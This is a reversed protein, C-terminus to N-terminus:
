TAMPGGSAGCRLTGDTAGVGNLRGFPPVHRVADPPLTATSTQRPLAVRRGCGAALGVWRPGHGRRNLTDPVHAMFRAHQPGPKAPGPDPAGGCRRPSSPPYAGPLHRGDPQVRAAGTASLELAPPESRRRMRGIRCAEPGNRPRRDVAGGGLRRSRRGVRRPACGAKMWHDAAWSGRSQSSCRTRSTQNDAPWSSTLEKSVIRDVHLDSGTLSEPLRRQGRDPRPDPPAIPGKLGAATSGGPRLTALFRHRKAAAEEPPMATSAPAAPSVGTVPASGRTFGRPQSRRLRALRSAPIRMAPIGIQTSLPWRSRAEHGGTAAM